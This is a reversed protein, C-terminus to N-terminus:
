APVPNMKAAFPVTGAAGGFGATSAASTTLCSFRGAGVTPISGSGYVPYSEFLCLMGYVNTLIKVQNQSLAPNAGSDFVATNFSTEAVAVAVGVVNLNSGPSPEPDTVQVPGPRSHRVDSPKLAGLPPPQPNMYLRTVAPSTGILAVNVTAQVTDQVPDVPAAPM